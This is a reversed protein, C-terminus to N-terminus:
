KILNAVQEVDAVIVLGHGRLLDNEVAVLSTVLLIQDSLQLATNARQTSRSVVQQAVTGVHQHCRQCPCQLGPGSQQQRDGGTMSWLVFGFAGSEQRHLIASKQVQHDMHRALDNSM